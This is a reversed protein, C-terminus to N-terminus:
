LGLSQCGVHFIWGPYLSTCRFTCSCFSEGLICNQNRLSGKHQRLSHDGRDMGLHCKLQSIQRVDSIATGRLGLKFYVQITFYRDTIAKEAACLQFMLSSNYHLCDLEWTFINLLFPPAMHALIMDLLPTPASLPTTQTIALLTHQQHLLLVLQYTHTFSPGQVTQTPGVTVWAWRSPLQVGCGSAPIIVTWSHNCKTNSIYALM